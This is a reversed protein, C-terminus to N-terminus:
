SGENEGSQANDQARKKEQSCTCIPLNTIQSSNWEYSGPGEKGLSPIENITM